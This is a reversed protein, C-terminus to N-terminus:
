KLEKIRSDVARCLEESHTDYAASLDALKRAMQSELSAKLALLDALRALQARHATNSQDEHEDFLKNIDDQLSSKTASYAEKVGKKNSAHRKKQDDLSQFMMKQHKPGQLADPEDDETEDAMDTRDALTEEDTEEDVPRRSQRSMNQATTTSSKKSARPPAM